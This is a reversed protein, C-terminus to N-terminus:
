PWMIRNLNYVHAPPYQLYLAPIPINYVIDVVTTISALYNDIDSSDFHVFDKVDILYTM